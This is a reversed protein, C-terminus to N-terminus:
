RLVARNLPYHDFFTRIMNEAQAEDIEKDLGQEKWSKNVERALARPGQGFIIGFNIPKAEDRSTLGFMEATEAHFDRGENFLQM